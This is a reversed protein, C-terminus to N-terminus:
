ITIIITFKTNYRIEGFRTINCDHIFVILYVCCNKNVCLRNISRNRNLAIPTLFIVELGMKGAERASSFARWGTRQVVAHKLKQLCNTCRYVM